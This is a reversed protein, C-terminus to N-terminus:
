SEKLHERWADRGHSSSRRLLTRLEALAGVRAVLLQPRHDDPPLRRRSQSRWWDTTKAARATRSPPVRHGDTADEENPRRRRARPAPALVGGACQQGATKHQHGDAHAVVRFRAQGDDGEQGTRSWSEDAPDGSGRAVLALTAAAHGRVSRRRCGPRAQHRWRLLARAPPRYGAGPRSRRDRPHGRAPLPEAASSPWAWATMPWSLEVHDPHDSATFTVRRQAHRMANDVVPAVARVVLDGPAAIRASSDRDPRRRGRTRRDTRAPRAHRRRAHM